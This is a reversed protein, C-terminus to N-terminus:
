LLKEIDDLIDFRRCTAVERQASAGSDRAGASGGQGQSNGGDAGIATDRSRRSSADTM